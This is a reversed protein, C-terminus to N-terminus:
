QIALLSCKIDKQVTDGALLTEYYNSMKAGRCFGEHQCDIILPTLPTLLCPSRNEQAKWGKIRTECNKMAGGM